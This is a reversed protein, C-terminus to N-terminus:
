SYADWGYYWTPASNVVYGTGAVFSNNLATYMYNAVLGAGVSLQENAKYSIQPNIDVDRLYTQTTDGKVISNDGFQVNAFYPQSINLGIVWQSNLRIAGLFYPLSNFENTSATGTGYTSTGTFKAFTNVATTGIILETQNINNIDAPNSYSTGLFYQIVNAQTVQFYSILLLLFIKKITITKYERM